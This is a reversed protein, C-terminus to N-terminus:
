IHYSNQFSNTWDIYIINFYFTANIRYFFFFFWQEMLAFLIDLIFTVNKSKM